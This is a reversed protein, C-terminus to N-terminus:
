IIERINAFRFQCLATYKTNLTNSNHSGKNSLVMQLFMRNNSSETWKLWILRRYTMETKDEDPPWFTLNLFLVAVKAKMWCSPVINRRHAETQATCNKKKVNQFVFPPFLQCMTSDSLSVCLIFLCCMRQEELKNHFHVPPNVTPSRTAPVLELDVSSRPSAAVHIPLWCPGTTSSWSTRSRRRPPKMWM